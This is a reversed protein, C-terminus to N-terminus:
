DAKELIIRSGEQSLKVYDGRGLDLESAFQKPLVITLSNGGVVTVARYESKKSKTKTRIMQTSM